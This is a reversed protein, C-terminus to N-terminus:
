QPWTTDKVDEWLAGKASNQREGTFWTWRAHVRDKYEVSCSTGICLGPSVHVVSNSICSLLGHWCGLQRICNQLLCLKLIARKTCEFAQKYWPVAFRLKGITIVVPVKCVKIDGASFSHNQLYRLRMAPLFSASSYLSGSTGTPFATKLGELLLWGSSSAFLFCFKGWPFWPVCTLKGHIWSM